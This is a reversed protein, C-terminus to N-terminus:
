STVARVGNAAFALAVEPDQSREPHNMLGFALGDPSTIGAVGGESGDPNAGEPYVLAPRWSATSTSVFRGEGHACPFRLTQGTLGNLWPSPNDGVVVHPQDPVNRFTGCENVRLAVEHGFVGVRVATQFGNCICLLPRQRVAAFQKELKVALM